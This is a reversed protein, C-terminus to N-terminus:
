AHGGAGVNIETAGSGFHVMLAARFSVSRQANDKADYVGQASSLGVADERLFRERLEGFFDSFCARGNSWPGKIFWIIRRHSARVPNPPM